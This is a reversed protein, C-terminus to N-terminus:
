PQTTVICLRLNGLLAAIVLHLTCARPSAPHKHHIVVPQCHATYHIHGFRYLIIGDSGSRIGPM